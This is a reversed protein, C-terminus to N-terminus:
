VKGYRVWLRASPKGCRKDEHAVASRIQCRALVNGQPLYKNNYMPRTTCLKCHKNCFIEQLLRTITRHMNKCVYMFCLCIDCFIARIAVRRTTNLTDIQRMQNSEDTDIDSISHIWKSDSWILYNLILTLFNFDVM